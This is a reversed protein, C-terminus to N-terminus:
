LRDFNIQVGDNGTLILQNDILQYRNVLQLLERLKLTFPSDCCIETCGIDNFFVVNNPRFRVMGDCTNVDLKLVMATRGNFSLEYARPATRTSDGENEKLSVPVWVNDTVESREPNCAGAALLSLSILVQIIARM